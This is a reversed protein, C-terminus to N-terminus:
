KKNIKKDYIFNYSTQLLDIGQSTFLNYFYKECIDVNHRNIIFLLKISPKLGQKKLDM